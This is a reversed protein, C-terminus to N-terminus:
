FSRRCGDVQLPSPALGPLTLGLEAKRAGLEEQLSTLLAVLLIYAAM